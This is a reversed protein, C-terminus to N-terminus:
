HAATRLAEIFREPETVSLLLSYGERTPLYVVRSPDTVFLLAKEGKRLRFWGAAYGPMGIGNTRLTPQLERDSRLDVVTAQEPLLASAPLSRGYAASRIALGQTSLEFRASRSALAFYGFMAAMALMLAVIGAFAGLARGSAPVIHFVEPMAGERGILLYM